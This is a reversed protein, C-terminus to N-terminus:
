KKDKDNNNKKYKLIKFTEEQEVVDLDIEKLNLEEEKMAIYEFFRNVFAKKIRLEAEDEPTIATTYSYDIEINRNHNNEFKTLKDVDTKTSILKDATEILTCWLNADGIMNSVIDAYKGNLPKIDTDIPNISSDITLSLKNLGDLVNTTILEVYQLDDLRKYINNSKDNLCDLEKQKLEIEKELEVKRVDRYYTDTIGMLYEISAGTEAEITSFLDKNVSFKGSGYNYVTSMDKGFIDAVYKVGNKNVMKEVEIQPRSGKYPYKGNEKRNYDAAYIDKKSYKKLQKEAEKGANIINELEKIKNKEEKETRFDSAETLYNYTCGTNDAIFNYLRDPVKKEGLTYKDIKDKSEGTKKCIEDIGLKDFCNKMEIQQRTGKYKYQKNNNIQNEFNDM